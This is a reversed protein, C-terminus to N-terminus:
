IKKGNKLKKRETTRKRKTKNQIKALVLHTACVVGIRKFINRRRLTPMIDYIKQLELFWPFALSHTPTKEM